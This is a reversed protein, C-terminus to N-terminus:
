KNDFFNLKNSKLIFINHEIIWSLNNKLAYNVYFELTPYHNKDILSTCIDDICIVVSKFNKLNKEITSLEDKIPSYTEGEFTVGGSFHGDLWFCVDKNINKLIGELCEESTGYHFVINKFKSTNIRAIKLCYESPEITHILPFRNALFATTRGM